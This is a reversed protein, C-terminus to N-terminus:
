FFGRDHFNQITASIDSSVVEWCHKFFAMSYGDPGPAKDGVCSPCQEMNRTIRFSKKVDSERRYFDYCM